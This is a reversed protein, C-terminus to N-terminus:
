AIDFDPGPFARVGEVPQEKVFDPQEQALRTFEDQDMLVKRRIIGHIWTEDIELHRLEAAGSGIVIVRKGAYDLEGPWAQPRVIHGRFADMGEWEPTYGTAQNCYGRCMWM